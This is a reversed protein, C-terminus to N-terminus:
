LNSNDLVAAVLDTMSDIHDRKDNKLPTFYVRAGIAFFVHWAAVSFSVIQFATLKGSVAAFILQIGLQPVDEFIISRITSWMPAVSSHDGYRDHFVEANTAALLLVLVNEAIWSIMFIAWIMSKVVCFLAIHPVIFVFLVSRLLQIVESDTQVFWMDIGLGKFDRLSMDSVDGFGLLEGIDATVSSLGIPIGNWHPKVFINLVGNEIFLTTVINAVCPVILFTVVAIFCNKTFHHNYNTEHRNLEDNLQIAVLIDSIFDLSAMVMSFMFILSPSPRDSVERTLRTWTVGLTDEYPLVPAYSEAFIGFHRQGLVLCWEFMTFCGMIILTIGVIRVKSYQNTLLIYGPIIIFIMILFFLWYHRNTDSERIARGRYMMVIRKVTFGFHIVFGLITFTWGTILMVKNGDDAGTILLPLGIINSIVVYIFPIGIIDLNENDYDVM